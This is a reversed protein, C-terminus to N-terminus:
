RRARAYLAVLAVHEVLLKAILVAILVNALVLPQLWWVLSAASVNTLLLVSAVVTLSLAWDGARDAQFRLRLDREDHEVPGARRGLVGAAVGWAIAMVVIFIVLNRAPLEYLRTPVVDLHSLGWLFKAMAVLILATFGMGVWGRREALSWTEPFVESGKLAMFVLLGALSLNFVAAGTAGIDVGLWREAPGFLNAMCAVLALAILAQWQRRVTWM